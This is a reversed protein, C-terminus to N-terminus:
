IRAFECLEHFRHNSKEKNLWDGYVFASIKVPVPWGNAM